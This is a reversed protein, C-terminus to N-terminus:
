YDVKFRCFRTKWPEYSCNNSVYVKLVGSRWATLGKTQGPGIVVYESPIYYNDIVLAANISDCACEFHSIRVIQGASIKGDCVSNTGEIPVGQNGDSNYKTNAYCYWPPSLASISIALISLVILLNLFLKM